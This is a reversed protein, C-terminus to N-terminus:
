FTWTLGIGYRHHRRDYQPSIVPWRSAVLSEDEEDGGPAVNKRHHTKYVYRGIGFGLASGVLVDSLYHKGGTFRSISVASAGGYAAFQVWRHEHYESAIVTAMSWATASHGSPFSSGGDWFESRDHGSDPRKRQTIGKLATVVIASDLLAEATLLGTERAKYSHTKRGILYFGAAVGGGAFASGAESITHSPGTLGRSEAVEDGTIRDTTILAMSGLGLPVLWKTDERQLHFPATWIAKQDSLVNKFFQSELSPSRSPTPSPSPSSLPRQALARSGTSMVLVLLVMGFLCNSVRNRRM